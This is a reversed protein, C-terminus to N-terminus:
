MIRDNDKYGEEELEQVFDKLSSLTVPYTAINLLRIFGKMAGYASIDSNFAINTEINYPQDNQGGYSDQKYTVTIM